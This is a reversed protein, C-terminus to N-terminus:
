GKRQPATQQMGPRPELPHRKPFYPKPEELQAPEGVTFIRIREISPPDIPRDNPYTKVQSLNTIVWQGSIVIGFCPHNGNLWPQASATAFFMVASITAGDRTMGLRGPSSFNVPGLGELPVYLDPPSFGTGRPDGAEFRKGALAKHIKIGDYFHGQKM